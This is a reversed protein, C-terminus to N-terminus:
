TSFSRINNMQIGQVVVVGGQPRRCCCCLYVEAGTFYLLPVPTIFLLGTMLMYGTIYSGAGGPGGGLGMMVLCFFGAVSLSCIM